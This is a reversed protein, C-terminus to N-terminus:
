EKGIRRLVKDLQQGRKSLAAPASQVQNYYAEPDYKEVALNLNDVTLLGMAALLSYAATFEASQATIRNARADLLEQEANLVDLTTRSGLRAEERM